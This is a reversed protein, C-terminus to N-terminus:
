DGYLYRRKEKEKIKMFIDENKRKRKKLRNGFGAVKRTSRRIRRQEDKAEEGDCRSSRRRQKDNENITQGAVSKM